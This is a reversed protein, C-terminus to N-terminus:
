DGRDRRSERASRVWLRASFAVTSQRWLSNSGAALQDVTSWIARIPASVHVTESADDVVISGGSKEVELHQGPEEVDVLVVNGSDRLGELPASPGVQAAREAREFPNGCTPAQLPEAPAYSQLTSTLELCFKKSASRPCRAV